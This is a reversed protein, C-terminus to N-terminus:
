DWTCDVGGGLAETATRTPDVGFGLATVAVIYISRTTDHISRLMHTVTYQNGTDGKQARVCM